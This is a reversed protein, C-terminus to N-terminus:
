EVPCAQPQKTSLTLYALTRRVAEMRNGMTDVPAFGTGDRCWRAIKDDLAVPPNYRCWWYHNGEGPKLDAITYIELNFALPHLGQDRLPQMGTSYVWGKANGAQKGRSSAFPTMQAVCKQLELYRGEDPSGEVRILEAKDLGAHGSLYLRPLRKIVQNRIIRSESESFVEGGPYEWCKNTCQRCNSKPDCDGTWNFAFNRNLDVLNSNKRADRYDDSNKGHEVGDPNVMPVVYTIFGDVIKRATAETRYKDLLFHIYHLMSESGIVESGHTAGDFWVRPRSSPGAGKTITVLWIRRGETSRGISEMQMLGPHAQKLSTLEATLRDYDHYSQWVIPNPGPTEGKALAGAFLGLCLLAVSLLMGM